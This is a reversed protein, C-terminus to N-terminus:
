ETPSVAVLGRLGVTLSGDADQSRARHHESHGALSPMPNTHFIKCRTPEKVVSRLNYMHRNRPVRGQSSAISEAGARKKDSPPVSRRFATFTDRRFAACLRLSACLWLLSVFFLVLFLSLFLFLFFISLDFCSM